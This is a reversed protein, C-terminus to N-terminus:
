RSELKKSPFRRFFFELVLFPSFLAVVFLSMVTLGMIANNRITELHSLALALFILSLPLLASAIGWAIRDSLKARRRMVLIAMASGFPFAVFGSFLAFLLFNAGGAAM